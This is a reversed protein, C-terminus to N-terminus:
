ATPLTPQCHCVRIANGKIARRSSVEMREMYVNRLYRDRFPENSATDVNRLSIEIEPICPLIDECCHDLTEAPKQDEAVVLNNSSITKAIWLIM